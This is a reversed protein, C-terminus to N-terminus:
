KKKEADKKMKDLDDGEETRKGKAATVVDPVEEVNRDPPDVLAHRIEWAEDEDLEITDGAEYIENVVEDTDPDKVGYQIQSKVRYKGM